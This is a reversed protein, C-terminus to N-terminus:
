WQRPTLIPRVRASFSDGRAVALRGQGDRMAPKTGANVGPRGPRANATLSLLVRSRCPQLPTVLGAVVVLSEATFVDDCPTRSANGSTGDPSVRRSPLRYRNARQPRVFGPRLDPLRTETRM